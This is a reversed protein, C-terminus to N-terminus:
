GSVYPPILYGGVELPHESLRMVNPAVNCVRYVEMMCAKLYPLRNLTAGDMASLDRSPFVTRLESFLKSSVRADRSIWYLM